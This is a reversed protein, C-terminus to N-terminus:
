GLYRFLVPEKGSDVSSATHRTGDTDLVTRVAAEHDFSRLIVPIDVADADHSILIVTDAATDAALDARNIGDAHDAPRFERLVPLLVSYFGSERCFASDPSRQLLFPLPDIHTFNVCPDILSNEANAHVNKRPSHRFRHGSGSLHLLKGRENLFLTELLNQDNRILYQHSESKQVPQKLRHFAFPDAIHDVVSYLRVRRIDIDVLAHGNILFVATLRHDGESPSRRHVAALPDACFKRM